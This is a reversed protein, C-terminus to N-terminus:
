PGISLVFDKSRVSVPVGVIMRGDPSPAKGELVIEGRAHVPGNLRIRFGVVRGKHFEGMLLMKVGFRSIADLQARCPRHIWISLGQGILPKIIVFGAGVWKGTTPRALSQHYVVVILHLGPQCDRFDAVMECGGSVQVDDESDRIM